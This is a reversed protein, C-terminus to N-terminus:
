YVIHYLTITFFYALSSGVLPFSSSHTWVPLRHFNTPNWGFWLVAFGSGCPLVAKFYHRLYFPHAPTRRRTLCFLSPSALTPPPSLQYRRKAWPLRRFLRSACAVRALFPWGIRTGGEPKFCTTRPRFFRAHCLPPLTKLVVPRASFSNSCKRTRHGQVSRSIALIAHIPRPLHVDPCTLVAATLFPPHTSSPLLYNM